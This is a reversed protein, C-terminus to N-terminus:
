IVYESVVIHHLEIIELAKFSCLCAFKFINRNSYYEERDMNTIKMNKHEKLFIFSIAKIMITLRFHKNIGYLTCKNLSINLSMIQAM